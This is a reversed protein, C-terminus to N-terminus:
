VEAGAELTIAGGKGAHNFEEAAVTLLSGSELTLSGFAELNIVGGHVGSADITGTVDISGQDASLNFIHSQALGDVLVGGTRVRISRAYTFGSANLMADLAALTPLSRIDLIFTGGGAGDLRGLSNFAG